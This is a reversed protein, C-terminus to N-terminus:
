TNLAIAHDACAYMVVRNVNDPYPGPWFGTGGNNEYAGVCWYWKDDRSPSSDMFCNNRPTLALGANPSTWLNPDSFATSLEEFGEIDSSNTPNSTQKWVNCFKGDKGRTLTPYCIKMLLKGDETRFSELIGLISFMGSEEDSPNSSLVTEPTWM